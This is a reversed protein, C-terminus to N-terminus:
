FGISNGGDVPLNVGTVFKAAESALFVAAYGIDEPLGMKGMPTRALARQKRPPDADLAKKTM